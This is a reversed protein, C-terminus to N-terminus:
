TVNALLASEVRDVLAVDWDGYSTPAKLWRSLHGVFSTDCVLTETAVTPRM